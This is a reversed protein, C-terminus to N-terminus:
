FLYKGRFVQSMISIACMAANYHSDFASRQVKVTRYNRSLIRQNLQQQLHCLYRDPLAAAEDGLLILDPNLLNVVNCLAHSLPVIMNQMLLADAAENDPLQCLKSFREVNCLEDSRAAISMIQEVSSYAELCGRNGCRCVPGDANISIHGLESAFGTQESALQGGSIVGMGIGSSFGVYLLNDCGIGNGYLADALAACNYHHELQVPYPYREEFLKRLPLNSIGQFGPPNLIVGQRIDVPGITGIGIGMVDPNRQLIRDTMSFLAEMLMDRDFVEPLDVQDTDLIEMGFSCVAAYCYRRQVMIGLVKPADPSLSLTIPNSRSGRGADDPERILNQELFESVINSLAMKSLKSQKALEVRSNATKTALLQFVLGRNAHKQTAKNIGKRM